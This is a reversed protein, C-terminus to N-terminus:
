NSAGRASAQRAPWTEWTLQCREAFMESPHGERSLIHHLIEHSVVMEHDVYNGAIVIQSEGGVRQWMGVRQAGDAVFSDVGPVVYWEVTEFSAPIGSCRETAEFWARFHAPAELRIALAPLSPSSPEAAACGSSLLAGLLIASSKWQISNSM